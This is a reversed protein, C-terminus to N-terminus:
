PCVPAPAVTGATYRTSDTAHTIANYDNGIDYFTGTLTTADISMHVASTDRWGGSVHSQSGSLDLYITSGIIHGFGSLTFPNDATALVDGILTYSTGGMSQIDSEFFLVTPIVTGTVTTDTITLNWCYKGMYTLPTASVAAESLSPLSLLATLSLFITLPRIVNSMKGGKNSSIYFKSDSCRSMLLLLTIKLYIKM